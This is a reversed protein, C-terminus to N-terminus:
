LQSSSKEQNDAVSAPNHMARIEEVNIKFIISKQYVGKKVLEVAPVGPRVETNALELLIVELEHILRRLREQDPRKLATRFYAAQQILSRSVEQQHSLDPVAEDDTNVVGLLLNKTRELYAIAQADTSDNVATAKPASETPRIYTRGLYIGFTVLLVAAIGYAWAPVAPAMRPFSRSAEPRALETRIGEWFAERTSPDPEVREHLDMTRLTQQMERFLKSCTGCSSTHADFDAKDTGALEGYLAETMLDNCEKCTM